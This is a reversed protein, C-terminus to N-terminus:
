FAPRLGLSWPPPRIGVRLRTPIRTPPALGHVSPCRLWATFFRAPTNSCSGRSKAKMLWNRFSTASANTASNSSGLTTTTARAQTDLMYKLNSIMAATRLEAGGASILPQHMHLAFAFGSRLREFDMRNEPRLATQGQRCPRRSRGGGGLRLFEAAWRCVRFTPLEYASM